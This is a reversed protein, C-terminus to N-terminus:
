IGELDTITTKLIKILQRTYNIGQFYIEHQVVDCIERRIVTWRLELHTKGSFYGVHWSAKSALIVLEFISCTASFVFVEKRELLWTEIDTLQIKVAM